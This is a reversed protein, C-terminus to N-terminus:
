SRSEFNAVSCRQLLDILIFGDSELTYCLRGTENYPYGTVRCLEDLTIGRKNEVEAALRCISRREVEPLRSYFTEVREALGPQAKIAPRGLGLSLCLAQPSFVADAEKRSILLNCGASRFDDLRGPVAYVERGYESALRCTILGGGKVKSETIVVAQSLGAIIRNRRVFTYATPATGPPYDTVIASGESDAIRAAALRHQHPYISDIGCPLVAITSLGANLAAIHATIDVGFALGSVIAPKAGTGAMANTIRVTFDRGYPSIDRTGVIGVTTAGRGGGASSFIDEPESVSKYYLGAPPDPCDRLLDPFHPDSLPLFRCGIGALRTLEEEARDLAERRITGAYKSHAGLIADADKPSLGFVASASGLEQVLRLAYRPEYGFIHGLACACISEKTIETNM